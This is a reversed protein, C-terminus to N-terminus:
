ISFLAQFCLKPSVYQKSEEEWWGGQNNQDQVKRTGSDRLEENVSNHGKSRDVHRVIIDVM